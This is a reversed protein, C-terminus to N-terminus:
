LNCGTSQATNPGNLIPNFKSNYLSRQDSISKITSSFYHGNMIYKVITLPANGGAM